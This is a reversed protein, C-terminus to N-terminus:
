EHRQADSKQNLTLHNVSICNPTIYRSVHALVCGWNCEACKLKMSTGKNKASCAHCVIRKGELLWHKNHITYEKKNPQHLPSTQRTKHNPDSVGKPGWWHWDSYDTPPSKSGHSAFIIFNITVTFELLHFFLKKTWKWLWRSTPYLNTM